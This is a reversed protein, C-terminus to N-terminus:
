RPRCNTALETGDCETCLSDLDHLAARSGLYPLAAAPPRHGPRAPRAPAGRRRAKPDFGERGGVGADLRFKLVVKTSFLEFSCMPLSVSVETAAPVYILIDTLPGSAVVIPDTDDHSLILDPHTTEVARRRKVFNLM